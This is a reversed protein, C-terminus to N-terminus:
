EASKRVEIARVTDLDESAQKRSSQNSPLSPSDARLVPAPISGDVLNNWAALLIGAEERLTRSREQYDGIAALLERAEAIDEPTWRLTRSQYLVPVDLLIKGLNEGNPGQAGLVHQVRLNTEEFSSGSIDRAASGLRRPDAPQPRAPTDGPLDDATPLLPAQTRPTAALAPSPSPVLTPAATEVPAAAAQGPVIVPKTLYMACFVAALGTSAALLWPYARQIPCVARRNTSPNLPGLELTRPEVVAPRPGSPPAPHNTPLPRMPTM